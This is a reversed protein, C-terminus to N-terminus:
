NETTILPQLVAREVDMEKYMPMLDEPTPWFSGLSHPYGHSSVAHAHMDIKKVRM